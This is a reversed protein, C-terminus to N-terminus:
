RYEKAPEKILRFRRKVQLAAGITYRDGTPSMSFRNESIIWIGGAHMSAGAERRPIMGASKRFPVIHTLWYDVEFDSAAVAALSRLEKGLKEVPLHLRHPRGGHDVGPGTAANLPV